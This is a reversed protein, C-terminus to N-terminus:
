NPYFSLYRDIDVQTNQPTFKPKYWPYPNIHITKQYIHAQIFVLQMVTITVRLELGVSDWSLISLSDYCEESMLKGGNLSLKVNKLSFM